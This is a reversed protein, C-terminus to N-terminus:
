VAAHLPNARVCECKQLLGTVIGCIHFRVNAVAEVDSQFKLVHVGAATTMLRPVTRKCANAELLLSNITRQGLLSLAHIGRQLVIPM